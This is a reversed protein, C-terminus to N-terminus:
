ELVDIPVGVIQVTFKVRWIAHHFGHVIQVTFKVRWDHAFRVMRPVTFQSNWREFQAAQPNSYHWFYAGAEFKLSEVSIFQVAGQVLAWTTYICIVNYTYIICYHHNFNHKVICLTECMRWLEPQYHLWQCLVALLIQRHHGYREGSQCQIKHGRQQADSKHVFLDSTSKLIVVIENFYPIVQKHWPSICAYTSNWAHTWICIYALYIKCKILM